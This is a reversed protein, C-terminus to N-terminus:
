ANQARTVQVRPKPQTACYFLPPASSTATSTCQSISRSTLAMMTHYGMCSSTNIFTSVIESLGIWEGLGRVFEDGGEGAGGQRWWSRRLRGLASQEGVDEGKVEGRVEGEVEEKVEEREDLEGANFGPMPADPTWLLIHEFRKTPHLVRVDSPEEGEELEVRARQVEPESPPEASTPVPPKLESESPLSDTPTPPADDLRATSAPSAPEEKAQQSPGPTASVVVIAPVDPTSLRERREESGEKAEDTPEEATVVVSPPPQEIKARKAMPKVVDEEEEEDSLEIRAKRARTTRATRTRPRSLAVQGAGRARTVRGEGEVSPAPTLPAGRGRGEGVGSADGSHSSAAVAGSVNTADAQLIVGRYGRPLELRQAVLARGRFTSITSGPYNHGPPAPRPQFYSSVPAPGAYNISFPLLHLDGATSTSSSPALVFSSPM